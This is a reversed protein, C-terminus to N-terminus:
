PPHGTPSRAVSLVMLVTVALGGATIFGTAASTADAIPGLLLPAAFQGLFTATAALSVIQGRLSAPAAEGTLITLAPISLGLGLGVAAPALALLVPRQSTGLVAFGIVFALYCIRLLGLYTLRRRLRGYSLGALGMSVSLGTGYVAVRVPDDIGLEDLRLPLFMLVAALLVSAIAFLLYYGVLVPQHRVLAMARGAPTPEATPRLRPILLTTALGLPIGLLYLGFPAHWSIGGLAGGLLPWVVGGLSMATGRWGMVRDREPGEYAAILAVTTGTFVAAAGLGFVLRSAILVTYSTIVLGAGGAIGYVVFGSTLLARLGFRDILWGAAPSAIAITLGHATLLLGAATDSIALENRVLALVPSLVGGAMVTLTSGLLLVTLAPPRRSPHTSGSETDPRSAAVTM